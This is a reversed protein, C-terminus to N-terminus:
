VGESYTQNLAPFNGFVIGNQLVRNVLEPGSILYCLHQGVPLSVRKIFSAKSVM